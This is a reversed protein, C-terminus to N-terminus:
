AVEVEQMTLQPEQHVAQPRYAAHISAQLLAPDLTPRLSMGPRSESRAKQREAEQHKALKVAEEIGQQM